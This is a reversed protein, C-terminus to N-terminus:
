SEPSGTGQDTGQQQVEQKSADVSLKKTLLVCAEAVGNKLGYAKAALDLLEILANREQTSFEYNHM